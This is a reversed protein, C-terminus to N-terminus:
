RARLAGGPGPSIISPRSGRSMPADDTNGRPPIGGDNELYEDHWAYLTARVPHGLERIVPTPSMDYRMLLEVAKLKEERTYM